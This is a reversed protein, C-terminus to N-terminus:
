ASMMIHNQICQYFRHGVTQKESMLTPKPYMSLIQSGNPPMDRWGHETFGNVQSQLRLHKGREKKYSCKNLLKHLCHYIYVYIYSIHKACIVLNIIYCHPKCVTLWQLIYIDNGNESKKLWRKFFHKKRNFQFLFHIWFWKTTTNKRWILCM